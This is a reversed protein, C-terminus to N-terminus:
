VMMALNLGLEVTLGGELVLITGAVVWSLWTVLGTSTYGGPVETLLKTVTAQVTLVPERATATPTAGTVCFM